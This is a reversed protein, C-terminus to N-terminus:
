HSVLSSRSFREIVIGMYSSWLSIELLCRTDEIGESVKLSM